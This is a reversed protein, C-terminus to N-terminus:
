IVHCIVCSIALDFEAECTSLSIFHQKKLTWTFTVDRMFFMLSDFSKQDHLDGGWDSDSYGILKFNSSPLYCFNYDLTCKIYCLTWKTIKM